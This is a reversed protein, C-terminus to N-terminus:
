DIGIPPGLQVLDFSIYCFDPSFVFNFTLPSLHFTVVFPPSEQVKVHLLSLFMAPANLRGEDRRRVNIHYVRWRPLFGVRLRMSGSEPITKGAVTHPRM